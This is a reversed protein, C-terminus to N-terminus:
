ARLQFRHAFMQLTINLPTLFRAIAHRRSCAFVRCAVTNFNSLAGDDARNEDKM